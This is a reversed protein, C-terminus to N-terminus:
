HRVSRQSPVGGGAAPGAVATLVSDPHLTPCAASSLAGAGASGPGSPTSHEPRLRRRLDAPVARQVLDWGVAGGEVDRVLEQVRQRHSDCESAHRATLM